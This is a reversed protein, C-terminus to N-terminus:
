IEAEQKTILFHLIQQYTSYNQTPGVSQKRQLARQDNSVSEFSKIGERFNGVVGYIERIEKMFKKQLIRLAEQESIKKKQLRKEGYIKEILQFLGGM